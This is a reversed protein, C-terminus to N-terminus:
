LKAEDMRKRVPRLFWWLIVLSIAWGGYVIVNFLSEEDTKTGVIAISITVIVGALARGGSIIMSKMFGTGYKMETKGPSVLEFLVNIASTQTGMCVSLVLMSGFFIFFLPYPTGIFQIKSFVAVLLALTFTHIIKGNSYEQKLYWYVYTWAITFPFILFLFLGTFGPSLSKIKTLMYPTEIIACELIAHMMFLYGAIYNMQDKLFYQKAFAIKKEIEENRILSKDSLVAAMIAEQKSKNPPLLAIEDIESLEFEYDELANKSNNQQSIISLLNAIKKKPDGGVLLEVNEEEATKVVLNVPDSFHSLFVITIPIYVLFLVASLANTEDLRLKGIMQTQFIVGLIASLGCGFSISFVYSGVYFFGSISKQKSKMHRIIYTNTTVSVEAFGALIRSFVLLIISDFGSALIQLLIALELVILSILFSLKYKTTLYKTFIYNSAISSFTTISFLFGVLWPSVKMRQLQTWFVPVQGYYFILFLYHRMMVLFVNSRTTSESSPQNKDKKQDEVSEEEKLERLELYYEYMNLSFGVPNQFSSYSETLEAEKVLQFFAKTLGKKKTDKKDVEIQSPEIKLSLDPNSINNEVLDKASDNGIASAPKRGKTLEKKQKLLKFDKLKQVSQAKILSFKEEFKFNINLHQEGILFRSLIQSRKRNIGTLMLECKLEWNQLNKLEEESWNCGKVAILSAVFEKSVLIIDCLHFGGFFINCNAKELFRLLIVEGIDIDRTEIEKRIKMFLHYLIKMNLMYYDGLGAMQDEVLRQAAEFVNDKQDMALFGESIGSFSISQYVIKICKELKKEVTEFQSVLEEAYTWGCEALRESEYKSMFSDTKETTVKFCVFTLGNVQRNLLHYNAATPFGRNALKESESDFYQSFSQPKETNFDERKSEDVESILM